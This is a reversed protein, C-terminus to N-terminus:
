DEGHTRQPLFDNDAVTQMHRCKLNRIRLKCCRLVFAIALMVSGQLVVGGLDVAAFNGYVDRLEVTMFSDVGSIVSFCGHMSNM